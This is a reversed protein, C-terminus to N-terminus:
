KHANKGAWLAKRNGHTFRGKATLRGEGHMGARVKSVYGGTAIFDEVSQRPTVKRKETRRRAHAEAIVARGVDWQSDQEEEIVRSRTKKAKFRDKAM